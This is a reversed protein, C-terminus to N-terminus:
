LHPCFHRKQRKRNMLLFERLSKIMLPDLLCLTLREDRGLLMSDLTLTNFVVSVVKRGKEREKERWPPRRRVGRGEKSGENTYVMGTEKYKM